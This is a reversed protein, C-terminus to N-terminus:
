ITHPRSRTDCIKIIILIYKKTMKKNPIIMGGECRTNIFFTDRKVNICYRM